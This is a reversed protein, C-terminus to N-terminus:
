VAQVCVFGQGQILSKEPRPGDQIIKFWRLGDQTNCGEVAYQQM